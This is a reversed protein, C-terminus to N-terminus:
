KFVTLAIRSKKNTLVNGPNAQFEKSLLLHTNTATGVSNSAFGPIKDIFQFFPLLFEFYSLAYVRQSETNFLLSSILEIHYWLLTLIIIYLQRVM